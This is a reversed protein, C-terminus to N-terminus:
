KRRGKAMLKLSSAHAKLEDESDEDFDRLLTSLFYAGTFDPDNMYADPYKRFFAKMGDLPQAMGLAYLHLADFFISGTLRESFDTPVLGLDYVWAPRILSAWCLSCEANLDYSRRSLASMNNLRM